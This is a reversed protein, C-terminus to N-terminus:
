LVKRQLFVGHSRRVSRRAAFRRGDMQLGSCLVNKTCIVQCYLILESDNCKAHRGLTVDTCLTNETHEDAEAGKFGLSSHLDFSPEQALCAFNIVALVFLDVNEKM